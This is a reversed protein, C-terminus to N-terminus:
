KSFTLQPRPTGVIVIHMKDTGNNVLQHEPVGVSFYITDGAGVKQEEIKGDETKWQVVGSGSVLHYIETFGEPYVIHYGEAKDITAHSHWRHASFGPNLEQIAMYIRETDVHPPYIARKMWGANPADAAPITQSEIEDLRIIKIGKM